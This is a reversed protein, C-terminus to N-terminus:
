PRLLTGTALDILTSPRKRTGIRGTIVRVRAGFIRRCEAATKAPKRGSKNASTSVLAMGLSRCLRAAGPHATVRVAITPRGGTLLAPCAASAPVVWTVPGPWSRQMRGREAASLPRVFPKLRKFRDAILLLGKAASRGKLRILRQLARVNRPDCGLGYCSETPYAILDGRRLHARLEAGEGRM